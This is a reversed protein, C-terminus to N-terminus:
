QGIEVLRTKRAIVAKIQTGLLLEKDPLSVGQLQAEGDGVHIVISVHKIYVSGGIIDNILQWEEVIESQCPPELVHLFSMYLLNCYFYFFIRLPQACKFFTYKRATRLFVSRYNLQSCIGATWRHPGFELGTGNLLGTLVCHM